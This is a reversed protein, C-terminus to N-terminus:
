VGGVPDPLGEVAGVVAELQLRDFFTSRTV